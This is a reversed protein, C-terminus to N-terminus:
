PWPPGQLSYLCVCVYPWFVHAVDHVCLMITIPSGTPQIFLCICIALICMGCWTCLASHDHPVRYATYVFLYMITLICPLFTAKFTSHHCCCKAEYFMKFTSFSIINCFEQLPLPHSSLEAAVKAECGAALWLKLKIIVITIIVKPQPRNTPSAESFQPRIQRGRRFLQQRLHLFSFSHIIIKLNYSGAIPLTSDM